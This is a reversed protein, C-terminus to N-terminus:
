EQLTFVTTKTTDNCTRLAFKKLV